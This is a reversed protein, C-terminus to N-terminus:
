KKQSAIREAIGTEKVIKALSASDSIWKDVSEQSGLYEVALGMDELNKKFAPDQAIGKFGETLKNKVDEPLGKPAGVGIWLSFGVNLGQEKFTPVQAFEPQTLRKDGAVALVRVKGSKVHEKMEAIPSFLLQIHGGLTAAIGEPTGLFPVQDISIGAEKAFAEGTVHVITGLGPHGYKIAGPHEKAYNILDDLTQWPQDARVAVVIPSITVQALPDLATPYNYKTPSYLPQLILGVTTLGLTYGDPKTGAVENWSIVGGGGPKNVIVLPQGLHKPANKELARAVLDVTGGASFPVSLTIPRNPYKEPASASKNQVSGCGGIIMTVFLFCTVWVANMKLM